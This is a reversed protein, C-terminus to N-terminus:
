HNAIVRQFDDIIVKTGIADKTVATMLLAKRKLTFSTQHQEFMFNSLDLRYIITDGLDKKVEAVNGKKLQDDLYIKRDYGRYERLVFLGKGDYHSVSKYTRCSGATSCFQLDALFILHEPDILDVNDWTNILNEFTWTGDNMRYVIMDSSKMFPEGHLDKYQLQVFCLNGAYMAKFMAPKAKKIAEEPVIHEKSLLDKRVAEIDIPKPIQALLTSSTVFLALTLYKM